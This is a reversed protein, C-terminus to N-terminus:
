GAKAAPERRWGYVSAFIEDLEKDRRTDFVERMRRHIKEEDLKKAALIAQRRVMPNPHIAYQPLAEVLRLFRLKTSLYIPDNKKYYASIEGIAYLASAVHAVSGGRVREEIKRIVSDDFRELAAKVLANASVRNDVDKLYRKLEPIEREPFYWAFVEIVNATVRRDGRSLAALFLSELEKDIQGLQLLQTSLAIVASLRYHSDGEVEIKLLNKYARAVEPGANTCVFSRLVSVAGLFAELKWNREQALAELLRVIERDARYYSLGEAKGSEAEQLVELFSRHGVYSFLEIEEQYGKLAVRGESKWNVLGEIADRIGAGFFLSNREKEQIASLIRVTEIFPAGALTFSNVLKGFRLTGPAVASKVLFGYGRERTTTEHYRAAIEHIDRVASVALRAAEPGKFYYIVEDGAFEHVLGGYRSIVHTAEWFFAGITEMFPARPHTNFITSFGNIDTRVMACEFEYPATQGSDLEKQLAPLLQERLVKNKERAARLHTEYGGLARVLLESEASDGRLDRIGSRNSSRLHQFVRILDKFYYFTMATLCLLVFVVDQLFTKRHEQWLRAIRGKLGFGSGIVLELEGSRIKGLLADEYRVLEDVPLARVAEESVKEGGKSALLAGSRRLEYFDIYGDIVGDKLRIELEKVHGTELMGQGLRLHNLLHVTRTKKYDELHAFCDYLFFAIAYTAYFFLFTLALKLFVSRKLTM